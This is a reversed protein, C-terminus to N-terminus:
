KEMPNPIALPEEEVEPVYLKLRMFYKKLPTMPIFGYSTPEMDFVRNCTCCMGKASYSEERSDLIKGDPGTLYTDVESEVVVFQQHGCNPCAGVPVIRCMEQM